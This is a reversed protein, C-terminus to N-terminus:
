IYVAHGFLSLGLLYKSNRVPYYPLSSMVEVAQEHIDPPFKFEVVSRSYDVGKGSNPKSSFITDHFHINRDVTVRLGGPGVFYDREYSVFLKPELLVEPINLETWHNVSLDSLVHSAIQYSNKNELFKSEIFNMKRVIKWSLRGQKSKIEFSPSSSFIQKKSESGSYWRLRYKDRKAIGALNDRAAGFDSTDFYLSHVNRSPFARRFFAAGSLWQTFENFNLPDISFKIEYRM